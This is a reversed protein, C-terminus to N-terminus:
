LDFGRLGLRELANFLRHRHCETPDAEVCLMAVPHEVNLFWHLNKSLYREVVWRDYWDWITDRTGSDVAKARIDRPVGLEPVHLYILGADEITKQLNKKSVDPRYMSVPSHRIDLISRIGTDRMLAILSTTPRGEYGVTFFNAAEASRAENWLYKSEIRVRAPRTPLKLPRIPPM